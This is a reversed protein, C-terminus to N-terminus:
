RGNKTVIMENTLNQFRLWLDRDDLSVMLGRDSVEPSRPMLNLLNGNASELVPMQNPPEIVSLIHSSDPISLYISVFQMLIRLQLSCKDWQYIM